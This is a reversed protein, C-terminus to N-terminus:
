YELRAKELLLFTAAYKQGHLQFLYTAILDPPPLFESRSFTSRDINRFNLITFILLLWIDYMRNKTIGAM